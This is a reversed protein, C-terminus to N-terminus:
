HHTGYALGKQLIEHSPEHSSQKDDHATLRQEMPPVPSPVTFEM